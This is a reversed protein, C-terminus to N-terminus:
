NKEKQRYFDKEKELRTKEILFIASADNKSRWILTLGPTNLTKQLLYKDSIILFLNNRQLKQWFKGARLTDKTCPCIIDTDEFFARKTKRAVRRMDAKAGNHVLVRVEYDESAKRLVGTMYPNVKKPNHAEQALLTLPFCILLLCPILSLAFSVNERKIRELSKDISAAIMISGLFSFLLFQREDMNNLFAILTPPTVALFSFLILRAKADKRFLAVFLPLFVIFFFLSILEIDSRNNYGHAEALQQVPFFVGAEKIVIWWWWAATFIASLLFLLYRRVIIGGSRAGLWALPVLIILAATEKSLLIIGLLVGAIMFRERTPKLLALLFLSVLLLQIYDISGKDLEIWFFPAALFLLATFFAARATFIRSVIYVGMLLSFALSLIPLVQVMEKGGLSYLLSYLLPFIPGHKAFFQGDIDLLGVGNWFNDGVFIYLNSDSSLSGSTGYYLYALIVGASPLIYALRLLWKDSMSLSYDIKGERRGRKSWSFAKVM